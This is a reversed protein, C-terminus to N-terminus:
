RKTLSKFRMGLKVRSSQHLCYAYIPKYGCYILRNKDNDDNDDKKNPEALKEPCRQESLTSSFTFYFSYVTFVLFINWRLSKEMM